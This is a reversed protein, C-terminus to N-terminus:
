GDSDSEPMTSIRMSAAVQERERRPLLKMTLIFGSLGICVVNTVILPWQWLLIGYGLWLSFGVVTVAYTGTSIAGVNRTRIVKWAQSVFSITSTLTALAGVLTVFTM